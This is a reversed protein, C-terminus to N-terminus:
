ALEEGPDKGHRERFAIWWGIYAQATLANRITESMVHGEDRLRAAYGPYAAESAAEFRDLARQLRRLESLPLRRAKPKDAESM